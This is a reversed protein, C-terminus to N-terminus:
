SLVRSWFANQALKPLNAIVNAITGADVFTMDAGLATMERFIAQAVAIATVCSTLHNTYAVPMRRGSPLHTIVWNSPSREDVGMTQATEPVLFGDRTVDRGKDTPFTIKIAERGVSLVYQPETTLESQGSM